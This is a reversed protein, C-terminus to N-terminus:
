PFKLKLGEREVLATKAQLNILKEIAEGTKLKSRAELYKGLFVFGIVVITADFYNTEPLKLLIRLQPFLVIFSSYIYATM